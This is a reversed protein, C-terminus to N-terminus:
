DFYYGKGRCKRCEGLVCEENTCIRTVDVYEYVGTLPNLQVVHVVISGDGECRRCKGEGYCLECLTSGAPIPKLHLTAVNSKVTNGAQDTVVCYVQRGDAYEGMVTSYSPGNDARLSHCLLAM